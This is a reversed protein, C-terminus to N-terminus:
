EAKQMGPPLGSNKDTPKRKPAAISRGPGPTFYKLLPPLEAEWSGEKLQYVIGLPFDAFGYASWEGWRNANSDWIRHADCGFIVAFKKTIGNLKDAESASKSTINFIVFKEWEVSVRGSNTYYSSVTGDARFTLHKSLLTSSEIALAKLEEDTVATKKGGEQNLGQTLVESISTQGFAPCFSLLLGIFLFKM